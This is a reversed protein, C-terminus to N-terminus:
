KSVQVHNLRKMSLFNRKNMFRGLIYFMRKVKKLLKNSNIFLTFTPGTMMRKVLNNALNIKIPISCQTKSGQGLEGHEGKGWTFV